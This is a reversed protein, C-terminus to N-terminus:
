GKKVVRAAAIVPFSADYRHVHDFGTEEASLGIFSAAGALAFHDSFPARRKINGWRVRRGPRNRIWAHRGRIARRRWSEPVSSWARQM